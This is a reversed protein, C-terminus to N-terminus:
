EMLSFAPSYLTLTYSDPDPSCPQLTFTGPQYDRIAARYAEEMSDFARVLAQNVILLIKGNHTRSLEGQNAIYWDLNKRLTEPVGGAIEKDEM